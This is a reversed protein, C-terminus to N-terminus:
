SMTILSSAQVPQNNIIGSLKLKQIWARVAPCNEYSRAQERFRNPSGQLSNAPLGAGVPKRPLCRPNLEHHNFVFGPCAPQQYYRITKTKTDM